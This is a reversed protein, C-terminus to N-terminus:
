ENQLYTVEDLVAFIGPFTKKILDQYVLQIDFVYDGYPLNNTDEPDIKVQYDGTGLKEIENDSLKKQFLVNVVKTNKKVTFYIEDFDVDTPNGERDTILFREYDIDGRILAIRM